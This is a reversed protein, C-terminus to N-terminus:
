AALMRRIQINTLSTSDYLAQFPMKMVIPKENSVANDAGGYKIRPITIAICKDATVDGLVVDLSSETENIFKNLMALDQFFLDVSGTLNSRGPSLAPTTNSGVVFNPEVSNDLKLELATVLALAAGGEQLVGSFSDYPSNIQSATPSAKLTVASYTGDKGVIGFKGTVIKNPAISLTMDSISCGTFVGYQVIDGFRREFTFWKDLIGAKLINSSTAITCGTDDVVDKLVPSGAILMVTILNAAVTVVRFTGNNETDAFGTTTIIDGASVGDTIFNGAVTRAFTKATKVVTLSQATLNYPAAWTGGLAAELFPDYEGYSLEFGIDGKVQKVGHRFDSIQRDDRLEESQFTDKTLILNCSTHRLYVMAPTPTPTTGFVSEAIYSLGHESGAAFAM